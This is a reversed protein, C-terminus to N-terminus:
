SGGCNASPRLRSPRTVRPPRRPRRATARPRRRRPRRRHPPDFDRVPRSGSQLAAMVRGRRQRDSGEFPAQSTSVGASGVAPDPSPHGAVHWACSDAIPCEGCMPTPRCVLAGLDMIVQNWTWGAGDPVFADAAAQARKPTLREGGVRALVRAINTDVVAVDREYAFALVARATYPGIGPLALLGDLSDPLRGGNSATVRVATQTCTSPGAPIAWDRGSGCCTASRPARAGHRRRSSM